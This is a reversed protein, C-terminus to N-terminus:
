STAHAEMADANEHTVFHLENEVIITASTSYDSSELEPAKKHFNSGGDFFSTSLTFHNFATAM